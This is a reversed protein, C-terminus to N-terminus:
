WGFRLHETLRIERSASAVGFAPIRPAAVAFDDM